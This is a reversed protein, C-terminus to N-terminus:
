SLYWQHVYMRKRCHRQNAHWPSFTWHCVYLGKEWRGLLVKMHSLTWHCVSRKWLSKSFRQHSVPFLSVCIYGNEGSVWFFRGILSPSTVSMYLEKSSLGILVKTSSLSWHCMYLGKEWLDLLVELPSLLGTVCMSWKKVSVWFCSWLLFPGTVCAYLSKKM